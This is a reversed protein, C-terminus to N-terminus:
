GPWGLIRRQVWGGALAALVVPIGLTVLNGLEWQLEERAIVIIVFLEMFVTVLAGTLPGQWWGAPTLRLVAHAFATGLPAVVVVGFLSAMFLGITAFGLLSLLVAQWGGSHTGLFSIASFILAGGAYTLITAVMSAEFLERTGPRARTAVEM